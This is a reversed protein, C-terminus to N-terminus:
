SRWVNVNVDRMNNHREFIGYIIFDYLWVIFDTPNPYHTFDMRSKKPHHSPNRHQANM